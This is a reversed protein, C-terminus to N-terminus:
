DHISAFVAIADQIEPMAREVAAEGLEVLEDARHFDLLGVHGVRPNISVDPPEGALRSRAIRDQVINLAAIMVEFTGPIGPKPHMITNLLQATDGNGGNPAAGAESGLKAEVEHHKGMIDANLNVCIVMQAGLARCVSVPVPNVLAGDILWHGNMRVPKFIGPLSLSARMADVLKGDRLWIEHGTRLDTTVAVFPAKLNMIDKDGLYREAEQFLKKGSIMGGGLGLNVYRLLRLKTLRRAWLELQKVHGALYFGGVLSGISSGAIVDPVIGLRDIAKLVGLHAWGRAVGSGLALGIRIRAM